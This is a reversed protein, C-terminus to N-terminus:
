GDTREPYALYRNLHNSAQVLMRIEERIAKILVTLRVSNAGAACKEAHLESDESLLGVHIKPDICALQRWLEIADVIDDIERACSGVNTAMWMAVEQPKFEEFYSPTVGRGASKVDSRTQGNRAAVQEM